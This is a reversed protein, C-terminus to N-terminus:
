KGPLGNGKHSQKLVGVGYEQYDNAPRHPFLYRATM